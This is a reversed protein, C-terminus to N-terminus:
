SILQQSCNVMFESLEFVVPKHKFQCLGAKLWTLVRQNGSLKLMLVRM